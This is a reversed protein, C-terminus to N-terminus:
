SELKLSIWRRGNSRGHDHSVGMKALNPAVRAIEASLANASKPFRPHKSVLKQTGTERQEVFKKLEQLLLLATGRFGQGNRESLYDFILVAVPSAEIAATHADEINAHYAALFAGSSYGLAEEVAVGWKTFDAMRPVSDLVVSQVKGLGISITQLLGALISPRAEEFEKWFLREDRRKNEPIPEVHILITRDLLDPRELFEEGIGNIVLPRRYTFIEEQGDNTYYKRERHAGGTAITCMRDSLEPSIKSINDMAILHGNSAAFSLDRGNRPSQTMKAACPDILARAVKTITSKASGQVGTLALIPYPTDPLLSYTLWALYLIGNQPPINLFSLVKLLDASNGDKYPKVLSSMAADRRFKVPPDGVIGWGTPTIEIAQWSDNVMDIYIKGEHEATRVFTEREKGKFLAFMEFEEVCAKVLEKTPPCGLQDYLIKKVLLYFDRTDIRLNERHNGVPVTAWPKKRNHFFEWGQQVTTDKVAQVALNKEESKM